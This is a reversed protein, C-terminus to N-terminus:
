EDEVPPTPLLHNVSVYVLMVLKSIAQNNKFLFNVTRENLDRM